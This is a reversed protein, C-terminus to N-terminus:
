VVVVCVQDCWICVQLYNCKVGDFQCEVIICVDFLLVQDLVKCYFVLVIDEGCEIEEFIVKDIYGVLMGKVVVWGCYMVGVVMGSDEVKGGFCM